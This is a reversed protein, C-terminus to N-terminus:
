NNLLIEKENDLDSQANMYGICTERMICKAHNYKPLKVAKIADHRVKTIIKRIGDVQDARVIGLNNLKKVLDLEEKTITGIKM